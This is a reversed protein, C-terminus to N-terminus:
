LKYPAYQIYENIFKSWSTYWWGSCYIVVWWLILRINKYFSAIFSIISNNKIRYRPHAYMVIFKLSKQQIINQQINLIIFKNSLMQYIQKVM